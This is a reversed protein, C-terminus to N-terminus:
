SAVRRERRRPTYLCEYAERLAVWQGGPWTVIGAGVTSAILPGTIRQVSAASVRIEMSPSLALVGGHDGPWHWVRGGCELFDVIRAREALYATHSVRRQARLATRENSIPPSTVMRNRTVLVIRRDLSVYGTEVNRWTHIRGSTSSQVGYPLKELRNALREEALLCPTFALSYLARALAPARAGAFKLALCLARDQAIMSRVTAPM